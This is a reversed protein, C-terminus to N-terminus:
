KLEGWFKGVSVSAEIPVDWGKCGHHQTLACLLLQKVLEENEESVTVMLEDHLQLRWQVDVGDDQLDWFIDKLWSQSNQIMGQATGSVIYSVAQRGNSAQVQTDRSYPLYNIMGFYDRVEGTSAVEEKVEEIFEAIGENSELWGERISRTSELDYDTMGQKWFQGLLAEDGIGYFIGFQTTKAPSRYKSRNAEVEELSVNFIHAATESHADRGEKIIKILGKDQALQAGVRLELQKFDAAILVEGDECTYCNRIEPGRRIPVQLLNPEKMRLRRTPTRTTALEGHVYQRDGERNDMSQIAPVCFADKDHQVNRWDFVMKIAPDTFKLYEISKQSTSVDGSETKNLPKLGRLSLLLAVNARSMPNIQFKDMFTESLEQRIQGMDQWYKSALDQFRSRIGLLGNSEMERFSELVEMGPSIFIDWLKLRKLEATMPEVLRLALDADRAGYYIADELPVDDMTAIPMPGFEREAVATFRECPLGNYTLKKTRAINGWRDDPDPPNGDKDLKPGLLDGERILMNTERKYPVGDKKFRQVQQFIGAGRRTGDLDMDKLINQAKTSISSPSYIKNSGDNEYVEFPEPKPFKREAVKQLYVIKKERGVKGIFEKFPKKHARLWRWSLASLSQPEVRMLYAAYQPDFFRCRRLDLGMELCLGIDYPANHAVIITKIEPYKRNRHRDDHDVYDQLVGVGMSFDDRSRRLVFGTGIMWSVQISWPNGPVGETDISLVRPTNYVATDLYGALQCGSVDEYTEGGVFQDCTGHWRESLDSSMVQKVYKAVQKYDWGIVGRVSPEHLGAAPHTVPLVMAGRARGKRSPDFEGGACLCGHVVRMTAKQGLFFQAAFRGVTIILKPNVEEIEKLLFDTWKAIDALSPDPNGEKYEKFVNTSYWFKSSMGYPALYGEQEQGAEGVFPRPQGFSPFAEQYGPAEGILMIKNPKQGWGYVYKRM